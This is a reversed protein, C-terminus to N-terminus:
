MKENMVEIVEKAKEEASESLEERKKRKGKVFEEDNVSSLNIDVNLLSTRVTAEALIASAGADTVAHSNGTRACEESLELVDSALEAMKFPPVTANKLASQIEEQREEKEEETDKPLGYADMVNNYAAIDEGIAALFGNKLEEAKDLIKKHKGEVEKYRDKGITLNAVMSSLAASLGGAVAAASGGGPAPKSSGLDTLFDKIKQEGPNMQDDKSM